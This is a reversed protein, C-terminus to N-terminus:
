ACCWFRRHVRRLVRPLPPLRRDRRGLRPLGFNTPLSPSFKAFSLRRPQCSCFRSKRGSSLPSRASGSSCTVCSSAISGWVGRLNRVQKLGRPIPREISAAEKEVNPCVGAPSISEGLCDADAAGLRAKSPSFKLDRKRLREFLMQMTKVHAIPDSEVVIVDLYAAVQKLCKIVENIVKVFWRPSASSGQPMVLWEYLGTTTCFATLHVTDKHATLQHLSCVLDLLSLGRGLSDLVQDM